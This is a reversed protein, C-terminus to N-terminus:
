QKQEVIIGFGVVKEEFLNCKELKAVVNDLGFQLVKKNFGGNKAGPLWGIHFEQQDGQNSMIVKVADKDYPNKPDHELRVVPKIKDEGIEAFRKLCAQFNDKTPPFTVGVVKGRYIPEQM